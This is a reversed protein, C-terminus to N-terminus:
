KKLDWMDNAKSIMAQVEEQYKKIQEIALKDDTYIPNMNEDVYIEFVQDGKQLRVGYEYGGFLLPWIILGDLSEVKSVGLNGTFRLYDPTKVNFVYGSEEKNYVGYKNKPVADVFKQYKITVTVFWILNWLGFLIILILVIKKMNLKKIHINNLDIERM